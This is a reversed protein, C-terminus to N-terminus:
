EAAQHRRRRRGSLRLGNHSWIICRMFRRRRVMAMKRSAPAFILLPLASPIAFQVPATTSTVKAPEFVWLSLKSRVGNPAAGKSYAM